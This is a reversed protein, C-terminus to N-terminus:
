PSVMRQKLGRLEDSQRQVQEELRLLRLIVARRHFLVEVEVGAVEAAALLVSASPEHLGNEWAAVLAGTVHEHDAGDKSLAQQLAAAFEDLDVAALRRARRIALAISARRRGLKAIRPLDAVAVAVRPSQGPATRM